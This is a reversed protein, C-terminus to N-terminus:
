LWRLTGPWACTSCADGGRCRLRSHALWTLAAAAADDCAKAPLTGALAQSSSTRSSSIVQSLRRSSGRGTLTRCLRPAWMARVSCSCRGRAAAAPQRRRAPCTLTALCCCRWLRRRSGQAAPAQPAARALISSRGAPCRLRGGWLRGHGGAATARERFGAPTGGRGTGEGARAAQLECLGAAPGPATCICASISHLTQSPDLSACGM